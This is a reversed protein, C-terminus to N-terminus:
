VGLRCQWESHAWLCVSCQPTHSSDPGTIASPIAECVCVCARVCLGRAWLSNQRPKCVTRIAGILNGTRLSNKGWWYSRTVTGSKPDQNNTKSVTNRLFILSHTSGIPTICDYILTFSLLSMKWEKCECWGSSEDIKHQNLTVSFSHPNKTRCVYLLM